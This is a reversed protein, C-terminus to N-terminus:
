MKVEIRKDTPSRPDQIYLHKPIIKFMRYQGKQLIKADISIFSTRYYKLATEIEIERKLLLVKGMAQIGNGQGERQRSDFISFAAVPNKLLHRIHLSNIKSIFYINNDRGVAYYLPATWPNKGDATGLVLYINDRLIKRAIQKNEM